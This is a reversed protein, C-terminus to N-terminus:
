RGGGGTIVKILEQVQAKAGANWMVKLHALTRVAADELRWECDDFKCDAFSPPEGGGYVLRCARFECESFSEGDLPVTEHNFITASQM